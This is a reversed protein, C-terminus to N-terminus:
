LVAGQPVMYKLFVDNRVNGEMSGSHGEESHEPTAEHIIYPSM